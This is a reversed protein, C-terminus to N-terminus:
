EHLHYQHITKELDDAHRQLEFALANLLNNLHNRVRNPTLNESPIETGIILDAQLRLKHALERIADMKRVPRTKM